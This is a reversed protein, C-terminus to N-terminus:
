LDTYVGDSALGFLFIHNGALNRTPRKLKIAVDLRSLHDDVVYGPKCDQKDGFLLQRM